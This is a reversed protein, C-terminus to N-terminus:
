FEVGLIYSPDLYEQVVKVIAGGSGLGPSTKNSDFYLTDNKRNFIFPAGSKSAESMETKDNVNEIVVDDYLSKNFNAIFLRDGESAAFDVIKDVQSSNSPIDVLDLVFLDSGSKGKIKQSENNLMLVNNRSDGASGGSPYHVFEKISSMPDKSQFWSVTQDSDNIGDGFNALVSWDGSQSSGSNYLLKGSIYEISQQDVISKSSPSNDLVVLRDGEYPDFDHIYSPIRSRDKIFFLDAGDNGKM